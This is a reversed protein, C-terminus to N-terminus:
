KKLGILIFLVGMGIFLLKSFSLKDALHVIGLTVSTILIIPGILALGANVMLAKEVHNLKYILFGACMEIFGSLVRLGAMVLIVKEIGSFM